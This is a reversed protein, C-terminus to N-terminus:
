KRQGPTVALTQIANGRIVEVPLAKGVREGGLLLQLDETDTITHGDLSVLIDGMLLGGQEAPSDKEVNVILLGHDQERGARQAEPLHVLQSSLGLYGRKIYGQQSLADVITQVQAMPIALPIGNSLGTTLIGLVAGEADLLPGGSFGPYPTADTRIYRELVTGQGTRVPGGLASVIGTSAMPGDESPRGVALILQGVRAPESAASAVPLNLDQIRLLALDTTTDRGVLTASFEKGDHSQIKLDNERELIHSATVVLDPSIVLGSASQRSRGHVTVLAPAVREVADAMQNSLSRLLSTDAKTNEM